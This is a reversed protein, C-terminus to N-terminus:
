RAPAPRARRQAALVFTSVVHLDRASLPPRVPMVRTFSEIEALTMHFGSLDGGQRSPDRRGDVRHCAACAQAFLAAGDPPAPARPTAGCGATGLVIALAVRRLM